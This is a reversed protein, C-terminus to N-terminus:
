VVLNPTICMHRGSQPLHLIPLPLAFHSTIPRPPHPALSHEPYRIKIKKNFFIPNAGDGSMM